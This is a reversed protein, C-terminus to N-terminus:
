TDQSKFSRKPQIKGPTLEDLLDQESIPGVRKGKHFMRQEYLFWDSV